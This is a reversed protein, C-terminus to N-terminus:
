LSLIKNLLFGAIGNKLGLPQSLYSTENVIANDFLLELTLPYCSYFKNLNEILIYPRILEFVEKLYNIDFPLIKNQCSAGHMRASLYYFIGELGTELSADTLRMLNTQMIKSDIEECIENADGEIFDNQLLYEIGWGIGSLGTDFRFSLDTYLNKLIDDLLEEGINIYIDSHSYRGYEFFFISIGMKGYFLGIDSIFQNELILRNIIKQELNLENM